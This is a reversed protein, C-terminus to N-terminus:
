IVLTLHIDIFSTDIHKRFMSDFRENVQQSLTRIADLIRVEADLAPTNQMRRLQTALSANTQGISDTDAAITGFNPQEGLQEDIQEGPQEDIQEDPIPWTSSSYLMRNAQVKGGITRRTGEDLKDLSNIFPKRMDLHHSGPLRTEQSVHGDPSHRPRPEARTRGWYARGPRHREDLGFPRHHLPTTRKGSGSSPRRSPPSRLTSPSKNAVWPDAGKPWPM